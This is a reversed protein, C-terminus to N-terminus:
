YNDDINIISCDGNLEKSILSKIIKNDQDHLFSDSYVVIITTPIDKFNDIIKQKYKLIDGLDQIRSIMENKDGFFIHNREYYIAIYGNSTSVDYWTRIFNGFRKICNEIHGIEVFKSNIFIIKNGNDQIVKGKLDECFIKFNLEDNM